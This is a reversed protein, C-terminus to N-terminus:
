GTGAGVLTAAEVEDLYARINLLEPITVMEYDHQRLAEILLRLARATEPKDHREAHTKGDHFVIISGSRVRPLAWACMKDGPPCPVASDPMELDFQIIHLGRRRLRMAEWPTLWGWPPRYLAPTKGIAARLERLCGDIHAGDTLSVAGTRGHDMSHAGLVHGAADARRLIEPNLAANVGICFFTGPAGYENLVDLVQETGGRVPGDDFTLAVAKRSRNGHRYAMGLDGLPSMLVRNGIPDLMPSLVQKVLANVM